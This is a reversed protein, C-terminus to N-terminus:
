ANATCERYIKEYAPIKGKWSYKEVSKRANLELQGKKEASMEMIGIIKETAVVPNGFDVIFGNKGESVFNRFTEIGNLLPICGAAMAEVASLGFGEYDSASVFFEAGALLELLKGGDVEGLFEVNKQMGLKRIKRELTERLNRFDGGVIKLMVGAEPKRKVVKAIVELLLEIRKNESIRGVFVFSGTASKREVAAFKEFDFGNEIVTIKERSVIESFIRGDNESVAVVKDIGNFILMEVTSFYIHKLASIKKTHFIGGHTSFVLPKKHLFKGAVLCDVFFGMGHIHVVDYDELYMLVRPAIKYYKFDAYSIRNIEIGEFNEKEELAEESNGCRNLCLVDSVHGRGILGTCLEQVVKEVGGVCPHFHHTVHLIKM